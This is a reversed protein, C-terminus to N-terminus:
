QQKMRLLERCQRDDLPSIEWGRGSGALTEAIVTMRASNELVEILDFAEILTKGVTIVGHNEMLVVNSRSLSDAVSSALGKTGMREYPAFAPEELLYWSEALLRTNIKRRMATFASAHVPHAHVVANVDPRTALASRHMEVEISLSLEPTLNDGDMSVVAIQEGTLSGKDLKSPTICFLNDSIRLSINGGSTTTLRYTYLRRMLSAVAERQEMYSMSDM